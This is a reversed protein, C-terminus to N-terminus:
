MRGFGFDFLEPQYLLNYFNEESVKRQMSKLEYRLAVVIKMTDKDFDRIAFQVGTLKPLNYWVGPKFKATIRDIMAIYDQLSESDELTDELKNLYNWVDRNFSESDLDANSFYEWTDNSWGGIDTDEFATKFLDRFNLWIKGNQVYLMILHGVDISVADFKDHLKFGKEELAKDIESEVVDRASTNAAIEKEMSWNDVLRNTEKEFLKLLINAARKNSEEDPFDSYDFGPDIIKIVRKFTEINEENFDYFVNYGQKFDEDTMSSDQFNYGEGYPHTVVNAFWADDDGINLFRFFQDNDKFDFILKTLGKTTNPRIDYLNSDSSYLEGTEIQGKTYKRLNQFLQSTAM